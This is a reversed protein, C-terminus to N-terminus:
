KKVKDWIENMEDLSSNEVTKGKAKLTKEIQKFRKIFKKNTKRLMDESHLNLHRALNVFTFLIDGMEEEINNDDKLEIANKLEDIEENLKDWVDSINKWDFGVYSAKQQLRYARTLAPLSPPVGDLRSERKKEKHKISEWNKKADYSADVQKDGFVHPHRNILKNNINNLTDLISFINDENAIQAQLVIHLMVDGLEEKFNTWKKEEVSEIVEYVEELFYPLLSEYTQERDWPCGNPGRLVEVIEILKIFSEAVNQKNM